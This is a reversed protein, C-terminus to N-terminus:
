DLRADRAAGGGVEHSRVCGRQGCGRWPYRERFGPWAGPRGPCRLRREPRGPCRWRREPRGPCRWRREPRGGDRAARGRFQSQLRIQIQRSHRADASARAGGAGHRAAGHRAAGHRAAQPARHGRPAGGMWVYRHPSCPATTLVQMSLLAAWGFM